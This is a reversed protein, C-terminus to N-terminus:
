TDCIPDLKDPFKRKNQSYAEIDFGVIYPRTESDCKIEKITKWDVTYEHELISIAEWQLVRVGQCELWSCRHFDREAKHKEKTDIEIQLVTFAMFQGNGRDFVDKFLNSAEYMCQLTKFELK